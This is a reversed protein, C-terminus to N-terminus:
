SKRSPRCLCYPLGEKRKNGGGQKERKEEAWSNKPCHRRLFTELSIFRLSGAAEKKKKEEKKREEGGGGKKSRRDVPTHTHVCLALSCLGRKKKGEEGKERKEASLRTSV